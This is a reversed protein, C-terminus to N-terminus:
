YPLNRFIEQWGSIAINIDADNYLRMRSYEVAIEGRREVSTAPDRYEAILAVLATINAEISPILEDRIEDVAELARISAAPTTTVENAFTELSEQYSTAVALFRRQVALSNEMANLASDNDGPGPPDRLDDTYGDSLGLLGAAGTIATNALQGLLAAIIEDIEDATILAQRGSDLNFTLAEQIIKGPKSIDCKEEGGFMQCVKGSMFGDGFNLLNIEEGRRNTLAAQMGYQAAYYAGIPTYSMPQSTMDFWADWGGNAFSDQTDSLFDDINELAGTLTCTPALQDVRTKQAYATALAFQIDLRFPECVMSAPGGLQELFSGAAMDAAELLFGQLDQVFAPRGEFGSNIWDVLTAVMQQVLTKALTWAIGDLVYEKIFDNNAVFAVVANYAASATTAANVALLQIQQTIQLPLTAPQAQAPRIDNWSQPVYTFSFAFILMTIMMLGKKLYLFFNDM